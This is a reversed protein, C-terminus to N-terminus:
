PKRLSKIIRRFTDQQAQEDGLRCFLLAEVTTAGEFPLVVLEFYLTPDPAGALSTMTGTVKNTVAANGTAPAPFAQVTASDAFQDRVQKDITNQGATEFSRTGNLYVGVLDDPNDTALRRAPGWDGGPEFISKLDTPSLLVFATSHVFKQWDAPHSVAVGAETDTGPYEAYPNRGVVFWTAAGAVLVLALLLAALRIGRRAFFGPQASTPAPPRPTARRV